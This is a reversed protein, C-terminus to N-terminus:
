NLIYGREKLSTYNGDGIILHDILNIYMIKCADHLNRTVRIDEDSPASDGSPHNHAIMIASANNLLAAQIIDRPSVLSSNVTGVHITHAGVVHNKTNLSLLVLHEKTKSSLDFVAEITDYAVEPGTVVKDVDYVNASDRVLEVTYKSIRAGM